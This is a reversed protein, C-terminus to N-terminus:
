RGSFLVLSSSEGSAEAFGIVTRYSTSWCSSGYAAEAMPAGIIAPFVLLKTYRPSRSVAHPDAPMTM